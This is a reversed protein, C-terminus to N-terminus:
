ELATRHQLTKMSDDAMAGNDLWNAGIGYGLFRLEGRTTADEYILFSPFQLQGIEAPSTQIEPPEIWTFAPKLPRPDKIKGNRDYKISAKWTTLSNIVRLLNEPLRQEIIAKFQNIAKSGEKGKYIDEAPMGIEAATFGVFPRLHHVLEANIIDALRWVLCRTHGGPQIVTNMRSDRQIARDLNGRRCRELFEVEISAEGVFAASTWNGHSFLWGVKSTM